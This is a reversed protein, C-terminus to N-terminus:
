LNGTAEALRPLALVPLQRPLRFSKIVEGLTTCDPFVVIEDIPVGRLEVPETGHSEDPWDPLEQMWPGSLGSM